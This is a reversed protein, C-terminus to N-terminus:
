AKRRRFIPVLLAACAILAFSSPEPVLVPLTTKFASAATGEWILGNDLLSMTPTSVNDPTKWLWNSNTPDAVANFLGSTGAHTDYFRISLIQGSAPLSSTISISSLTQYNGPANLPDPDFVQVTSSGTSFFTNFGFQGDVGPNSGPDSTDGFTTLSLGAGTLPVWNGLFPDVSTAGDYYGLQILDGDNNVGTNGATLATTGDADFVKKTESTFNVTATDGKAVSALTLGVLVVGLQFYTITSKM